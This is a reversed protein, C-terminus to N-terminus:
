SQFAQSSLPRGTYADIIIRIRSVDQSEGFPNVFRGECNFEIIWVKDPLEHNALQSEEIPLLEASRLELTGAEVTIHGIGMEIYKGALEIAEKEALPKELIFVLAVGIVASVVIAIALWPKIAKRM